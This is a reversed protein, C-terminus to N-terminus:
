DSKFWEVVQVATERGNVICDNVSVGKLYNGALFLGDYDELDERLHQIRSVHGPTMQPVADPWKSVSVAIPPKSFPLYKKLESLAKQVLEDEPLAVWEASRVGGVFIRLSHCGEPAQYPFVSSAFLIGLIKTETDVKPVLFGFGEPPEPFSGPDFGVNVVALSVSQIPSLQGALNDAWGCLLRQAAPLDAAIVLAKSQFVEEREPSHTQVQYGNQIQKISVVEHRYRMSEKFSGALASCFSGLGGRFSVMGKWKRRPKGRSQFGHRIMGLMLSSSKQDIEWLLPFCAQASLADSDGGYVGAVIASVVRDAVGTGLRRRVIDGLTPDPNRPRQGLLPEALVRLKQPWSLIPTQIAEMLSSPVKELKGGLLLERKKATPCPPVIELTGKLDELLDEFLPNRVLLNFPGKEFLFGDQTHSQACGGPEDQKELVVFTLGARRLDCALSLGSVGAGIVIVDLSPNM